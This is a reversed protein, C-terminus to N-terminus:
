ENEKKSHKGYVFAGAVLATGAVLMILAVSSGTIPLKKGVANIVTLNSSGEEVDTTLDVDTEKYAGNLFEKIHATTELNQLTKDTAGDGKIYDNRDDTFTAKLNLVIPDLLPRYGTPAKTEKLYYTGSDLGYIIFTGEANSVMEVADAPQEGGTHDTGGVSDRNIVNYGNETKKVYVEHKLEPDSYLRFKAGELQLNHDNTKLINIKYTFCVVTDWPTYGTDGDGDGDPNNSFELRVDNEFGPRGTDEAAKDNLTADYRLVVKQGYVNEDLANKQDFERDVIAKIDQVEVKFTEGNGPNTIVQFEEKALEYMKDETQIQITVSDPDFTLAEDMIDHWAYYYTDYGNINPINSEFKYPVTQGIEYDGIDNWGDNGIEDKNDDEQIKKIVTPYDSKINVDADPNATNVICMSAASHTGEVESVEDVIYYGYELGSIEISNDEKTETALVVDAAVQDKVMQDRLEEVFYRFESYSGEVNQETQSGEVQNNNLSQIYDIVEYETVSAAEKGLKEGVVTKLSEAYPENFTYNISEGGVSNEANFLQYVNFKKGALTQGENGQITISADGRRFDAVGNPTNVTTRAEAAQVQMSGISSTVGGLAVVTSLALAMFTKFPKKKMNGRRELRYGFLLIVGLILAAMMLFLTTNSGTNPLKIGINNIITMEAVRDAKTGTVTFMGESDSDSTFAEGNVYFIFEDKVPTSETYIEYTVPNGSEDLPLRYGAPAKTEQLYYKQGVKLDEFNLIGQDDTIGKTVEQTCDKDSFLTFEAGALLKDKNNLKHIKLSFPALLDEVILSINGQATVEFKINGLTPDTTSTLTVKNDEAVDFEIINENVVYGDMVELETIAHHGHQLAKFTLAGNEDTTLTEKTGDPKTHEFKAGPIPIDTGEQVKKLDLKMINEPIIPKNYTNVSEATGSPTIQRVFVEPNLLYGEPAKTEQITITGIPLSAVGKSNLYLADGSVLYDKAYMTFGDNDTKFVWTRVPTQGTDAPDRNAEWLGAYYKVTFQAGQLSASGQPKNQNTEADVKGLLIGIPDSQPLDAFSVSATGGAPIYVSKTEPNLAYGKPAVIEKVYYTGANLKLTNSNGNADTTLTGVRSAGSLSSSSYVGFEAGALSYCSNGNTLEPNASKKKLTAYGSPTYTGGWKSVPQGSGQYIVGYADTFYKYNNKAWAMGNRHYEVKHTSIWHGSGCQVNNGTEVEVGSGYWGHVENLVWWVACQKLLYDYQRNIGSCMYHDYYYFMAAITQITAQNYYKRADVATKYGSKFNVNPDACYLQEGSSSGLMGENWHQLAPWNPDNYDIVDIAGINKEIVQTYITERATTAQQSDYGEAFGVGIEQLIAKVEANLQLIEEVNKGMQIEENEVIEKTDESTNQSNDEEVVEQNKQSSEEQQEVTEEIQKMEEFQAQVQITSGFMVCILILSM